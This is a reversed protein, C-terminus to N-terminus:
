YDKYVRYIRASGVGYIMCVIFVFQTPANLVILWAMMAFWVLVLAAILKM